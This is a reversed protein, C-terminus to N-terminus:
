LPLINFLMVTKREAECGSSTLSRDHTGLEDISKHFRTVHVNYAFCVSFEHLYESM